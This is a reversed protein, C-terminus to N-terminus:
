EPETFEDHCEYYCAHLTIRCSSSSSQNCSQHTISCVAQLQPPFEDATMILKLLDPKDKAQQGGIGEGGDTMSKQIREEKQATM